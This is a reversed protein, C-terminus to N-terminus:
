TVSMMATTSTRGDITIAATWLRHAPAHTHPYYYYYYYYTSGTMSFYKSLNCRPAETTVYNEIVIGPPRRDHGSTGAGGGGNDHIFKSFGGGGGQEGNKRNRKRRRRV